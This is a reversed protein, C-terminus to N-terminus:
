SHCPGTACNEEIGLRFVGRLLTRWSSLDEVASNFGSWTWLTV